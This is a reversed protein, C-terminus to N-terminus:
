VAVVAFLSQMSMELVMPIALLLVARGIPGTTYDQRVGRISERADNWWCQKPPSPAPASSPSM